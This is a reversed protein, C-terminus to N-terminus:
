KGGLTKNIENLMSIFVLHVAKSVKDKHAKLYKDSFEKKEQQLEISKGAKVLEEELQQKSMPADSTITLKSM